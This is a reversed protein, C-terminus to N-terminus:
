YKMIKRTSRINRLRIQLFYLGTPQDSINIENHLGSTKSKFIERGSFDIVVLEASHAINEPLETYIIGTTPNPHILINLDEILVIGNDLTDTSVTDTVTLVQTVDLAPGWEDNGPQSATIESTGVGTIHIYKNLMTAVEANSSTITVPLGSTSFALPYFDPEGLKKEHLPNFNIVQGKKLIVCSLNFAEEDGLIYIKMSQVGAHLDAYRNVSITKWDQLSTSYPDGYPLAVEGTKDIGGFSIKIKGDGNAAAYRVSIEYLGTSPIYVTYNMWEGPELDTLIYGEQASEAIDVDGDLRYIGGSNGPTLDHYTKGEGGRGDSPFYDYNVLDLTDPFLNLGLVPKMLTFGLCPDGPCDAPRRYTLGGWGPCDLKYGSQEYGTKEIGIDRARKLWKLSDAPVNMRIMYHNLPMEWAPKDTFTGRIFRTFDDGLYPNIKLSKWRGTRDTTQYFDNPYSPEWPVPQDAFTYNYSVNYRLTYELGLLLRNNTWGYLNDGQNWAMEAIESVFGQGLMAHGQDRSSEQCQGNDYIYNTLVGDYGYDPITSSTTYNYNIFYENQSIITTSTKPGSAYPVDDPRHPLGKIYRLARDYMIENDFFVGMAIMTRLPALEQNGHRGPDFNYIRWYFTVNDNAIDAIPITTSSYGPYVLMAKFKDIDAQAWGTYTSKIIEAANILPSGYLGACLPETGGGYFNTLNSWTMLIAITKEAHRSDGTIYWMLSNLYAARADSEFESCHECPNERSIATWSPNGRIVYDYSSKVDAKMLLYSSYWPDVQAKVSYKMRDLDSIKHLIGPHIFTRQAFLVSPLLLLVAFTAEKIEIHLKNLIPYMKFVLLVM